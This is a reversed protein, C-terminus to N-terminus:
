SLRTFVRRLSDAGRHIDELTASYSVRVYGEGAPGYETGSRVAVGDALLLKTLEASRIPTAIPESPGQLAAIGARQAPWNVGASSNSHIVHSAELLRTPAILYGLRWGTM